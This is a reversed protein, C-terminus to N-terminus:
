WVRGVSGVSRTTTLALVETSFSFSPIWVHRTHPCCTVAFVHSRLPSAPMRTREESSRVSTGLVDARVVVEVRVCPVPPGVRPDVEFPAARRAVRQHHLGAPHDPAVQAAPHGEGAARERRE